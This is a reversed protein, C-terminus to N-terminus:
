ERSPVVAVVCCANGPIPMPWDKDHPLFGAELSRKAAIADEESVGIAVTAPLRALLNIAQPISYNPLDPGIFRARGDSTDVVRAGMAVLAAILPLRFEQQFNLISVDYQM